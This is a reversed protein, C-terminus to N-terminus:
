FALNTIFLTIFLNFIVIIKNANSGCKIVEYTFTNEYCYPTYIEGSNGSCDTSDSYNFYRQNSCDIEFSYLGNTLCIGDVLPVEDYTNTKECETDSYYATVIVSCDSGDCNFDTSNIPISFSSSGKCSTSGLWVEQNVYTGDDSCVYKYSNGDGDEVVKACVDLAVYIGSVLVYKCNDIQGIVSVVGLLLFSLLCIM